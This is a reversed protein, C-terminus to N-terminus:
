DVGDRDAEYDFTRTASTRGGELGVGRLTIEITGGGSPERAAAVSRAREFCQHAQQADVTPDFPVELLIRLVGGPAGSVEPASEPFQAALLETLRETPEKREFTPRLVIIFVVAQVVILGALAFGIIKYVPSGPKEDAM